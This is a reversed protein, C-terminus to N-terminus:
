TPERRVGLGRWVALLGIFFIGANFLFAGRLSVATLMGAMIPGMASGVMAGSNLAGFASSRQENPVVTGGLGYALTLISGAFFGVGVRLLGLQWLTYSFAMLASGCICAVLACWLVQAHTFRPVLRSAANASLAAALAGGAVIIGTLSAVADDAPVLFAVFLPILPQYSRDTFSGVFLVVLIPVFGPTRLLARLSAKPRTRRQPASSRPEHYVLLMNLGAIIALGSSGIFAARIGFHDALLGGLAPGVMLGLIQTSQALAIARTLYEPPASLSALALAVATFGGLTGMLLRLLALQWVAAAMACLGNILAFGFVTRVLLLRGGIRDALRGWLPSAIAASAPGLGILIGSWIAVARPDTVGLERVLFPLFPTSFYFGVFAVFLVALLSALNVQWVYVSFGWLARQETWDIPLPSTQSMHVTQGIMRGCICCERSTAL